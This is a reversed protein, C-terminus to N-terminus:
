QRRGAARVLGRGHGSESCSLVSSAFCAMPSMPQFGAPRPSPVEAVWALLMLDQPPSAACAATKLESRSQEIGRLILLTRSHHSRLGASAPDAGAAAAALSFFLHNVVGLQLQAAFSALRVVLFSLNVAQAVELDVTMLPPDLHDRPSGKSSFSASLYFSFNGAVLEPTFGLRVTPSM